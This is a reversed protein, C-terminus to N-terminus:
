QCDYRQHGRLGKRRRWMEGGMEVQFVAIGRKGAIEDVMAARDHIACRVHVCNEPLWGAIDLGAVVGQDLAVEAIHIPCAEIM